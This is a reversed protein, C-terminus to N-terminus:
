HVPLAKLIDSPGPSKLIGPQAFPLYPCLMVHHLDGHGCRFMRETNRM